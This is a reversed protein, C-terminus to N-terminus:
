GVNLYNLSNLRGVECTGTQVSPDIADKRSEKGRFQAWKYEVRAEINFVSICVFGCSHVCLRKRHGGTVGRKSCNENEM